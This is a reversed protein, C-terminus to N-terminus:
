ARRKLWSDLCVPNHPDENPQPVLVTVGDSALKLHRDHAVTSDVRLIVSSAEIQDDMHRQSIHPASTREESGPHSLCIYRRIATGVSSFLIRRLFRENWLYCTARTYRDQRNVHIEFIQARLHKTLIRNMIFKFHASKRLAKKHGNLSREINVLWRM